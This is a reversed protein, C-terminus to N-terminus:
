NLDQRSFTALTAAGIGSIWALVVLLSTPWGAVLYAGKALPLTLGAGKTWALLNAMHYLPLVHLLMSTLSAAYGYALMGVPLLLQEIMILAISLIVTALVSTTLVALLGAWAITYVIPVVSRAAASTHADAIAAFTVGSPIAPGGVLPRLLAGLLSLLDAAVFAIFVFLFSVAWKAMILQWRSRAPIILKWTNWGYEGAFVLAAFGAILFRGGGSLPVGWIPSSQGIWTAATAPAAHLGPAGLWDRILQVLVLMGLAIPYVWVMLWTARHRRLKLAEARIADLMM